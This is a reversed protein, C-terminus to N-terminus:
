FVILPGSSDRNYYSTVADLWRELSQSIVDDRHHPWHRVAHFLSIKCLGSWSRIFVLTYHFMHTIRLGRFTVDWLLVCILTVPWCMMSSNDFFCAATVWKFVFFNTWSFIVYITMLFFVCWGLGSMCSLNNGHTSPKHLVAKIKGVTLVCYIIDASLSFARCHKKTGAEWLWIEDLVQCSWVISWPWRNFFVFLFLLEKGNSAKYRVHSCLWIFSLVWVPKWLQM